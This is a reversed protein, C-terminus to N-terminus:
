KVQVYKEKMRSIQLNQQTLEGTLQDESNKGPAKYASEIM